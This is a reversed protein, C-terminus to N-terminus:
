GSIVSEGFQNPLRHRKVGQGSYVCVGGSSAPRGRPREQLRNEGLAESVFNMENNQGLHNKQSDKQQASTHRVPPTKLRTALYINRPILRYNQLRCPSM